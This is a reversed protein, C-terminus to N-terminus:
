LIMGCLPQYDWTNHIPHGHSRPTTNWSTPHALLYVSPDLELQGGSNHSSYTSSLHKPNHSFDSGKDSKSPVFCSIIAKVIHYGPPKINKRKTMTLAQRSLGTRLSKLLPTRTQGLLCYLQAHIFLM